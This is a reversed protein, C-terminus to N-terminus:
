HIYICYKDSEYARLPHFDSSFYFKLFLWNKNMQFLGTKNQKHSNLRQSDFPPNSIGIAFYFLLKMNVFFISVSDGTESFNKRLIQCFHIIIMKLMWGVIVSKNWWEVSLFIVCYTCCNIILYEEKFLNDDKKKINKKEYKCLKRTFMGKSNCVFQEYKLLWRPSNLLSTCTSSMGRPIYYFARKFM